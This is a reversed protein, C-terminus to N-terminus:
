YRRAGVTLAHPSRRRALTSCKKRRFPTGEESLEASWTERRGALYGKRNVNIITEQIGTSHKAQESRPCRYPNNGCV